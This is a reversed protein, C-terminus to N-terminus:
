HLRKTWSAYLADYKRKIETYANQSEKLKRELTAITNSCGFHRFSQFVNLGVSLFFAIIIGTQAEM